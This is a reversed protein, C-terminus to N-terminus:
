ATWGAPVFLGHFCVHLLNPPPNDNRPPLIQRTGAYMVLYDRKTKETAGRFYPIYWMAIATTLTIACYTIWYISVFRPKPGSWFYFAFAVALGPFMSNVITALWLKRQGILAQVQAGHTWGPIDILDHLAVCLFQLTILSTFAIQM